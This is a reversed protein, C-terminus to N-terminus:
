GGRSSVHGHSSRGTGDADDPEAEAAGVNGGELRVTARHHGDTLAVLLHRALDGLAVPYRPDEVAPLPHERLGPRLDHHDGRGGSKVFRDGELRQGGAAVDEAFLRQGHVRRLRAGHELRGLAGAAGGHRREVEAVRRGHLAQVGHHLRPREPTEQMSM